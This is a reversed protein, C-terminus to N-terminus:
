TYRSFADFPKLTLTLFGICNVRYDLKLLCKMTFRQTVQVSIITELGFIITVTPVPTRTAVLTIIITTVLMTLLTSTMDGVLPQVMTITVIRPM